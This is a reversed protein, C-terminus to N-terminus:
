VGGAGRLVDRRNARPALLRVIADFKDSGGSM